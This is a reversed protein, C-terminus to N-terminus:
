LQQYKTELSNFLFATGIKMSYNFCRVKVLLHSILDKAECSIDSWESDPFEYRGDQFLTQM